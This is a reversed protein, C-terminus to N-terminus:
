SFNISTFDESITYLNTIGLLYKHVSYFLFEDRFWDFLAMCFLDTPIVNALNQNIRPENSDLTTEYDSIDM